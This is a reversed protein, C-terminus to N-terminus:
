RARRQCCIPMIIPLDNSAKAFALSFPANAAHATVAFACMGAVVVAASLASAAIRRRFGAGSSVSNQAENIQIQISM